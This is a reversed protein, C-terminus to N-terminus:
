APPLSVHGANGGFGTGIGPSQSLVHGRMLALKPVLEALQVPHQAQIEAPLRGDSGEDRIKGVKPPAQHDFHIAPAMAPRAVFPPVGPKGRLAESHKPGPVAIDAPIDFADNLRHQIKHGPGGRGM